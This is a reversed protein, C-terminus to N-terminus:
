YMSTFDIDRCHVVRATSVAIDTTKYTGGNIVTAMSVMEKNSQVIKRPPYVYFQRATRAISTM